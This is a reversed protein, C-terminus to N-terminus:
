FVTGRRWREISRQWNRDYYPQRELIYHEMTSHEDYARVRKFVYTNLPDPDVYSYFWVERDFQRAISVPPGLIVYLMGRDTKWGEKHNTFFRNAEEVRSYYQKILNAAAQQNKALSLWFSDFRRRKEQPTNALRLSDWHENKALYVLPDILNDLVTLHPFGPRLVALDRQEHLATDHALEASSPLDVTLHIRYIGRALQPPFFLFRTQKADLTLQKVSHMETDVRSYDVGIYALSGVVPSFMNPPGAAVTDNPFKKVRLHVDANREENPRTLTGALRLSDHNSPLQLPIVPRFSGDTQRMELDMSTITIRDKAAESVSVWQERVAKKGSNEDRISVVVIYEGEVATLFYKGITSKSLQTEKYNFAVTTEAWARETFLKDYKRDFLMGVIEYTAIYRNDNLVFVLSSIPVSVRIGVGSADNEWASTAEMDFNPVGPAFIYSASSGGFHPPSSGGCGGLIFWLCFILFAAKYM